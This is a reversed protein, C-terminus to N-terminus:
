NARFFSTLNKNKLQGIQSLRRVEKSFPFNPNARLTDWYATLYRAMAETAELADGAPLLVTIATIVAWTENM